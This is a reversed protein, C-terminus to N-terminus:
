HMLYKPENLSNVQFKEDMANIIIDCDNFVSELMSLLLDSMTRLRIVTLFTRSVESSFSFLRVLLFELTGTNKRM